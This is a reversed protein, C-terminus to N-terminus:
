NRNLSIGLHNETIYSLLASLIVIVLEGAILGIFLGRVRAYTEKNGYKTALKKGLWGIFISTWYAHMIPNVLMIMGIPHPLWFVFMRGLLLAAMAVAGTVLWLHCATNDVPTTKGWAAVTDFLGKPFSKYFWSQMADGGKSYGLMIHMALSVGVAVVLALVVCAHFSLRRMRLDDRLKLSNAMAPAIFTKIDLFLISYYILLPAFLGPATWAKDMGFMTRIFHFPSVWAQFGLLGGEAVARVLGITIMLVAFYVMITYWPNAGMSLWLVLVL